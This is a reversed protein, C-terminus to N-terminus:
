RCRVVLKKAKCWHHIFDMLEKDRPDSNCFGKIQRIEDKCVEVTVYTTTPTDKYRIFAVSTTGERLSNIYSRLCNHQNTAEEVVEETTTPIVVMLKEYSYDLREKNKQAQEAFQKKDIEMKISRYAFSAIDHEKRLSSPFKRNSDKLNYGLANAQNLYDRWVTLAERKEICQHMYVTDLYNLADKWRIGYNAIECFESANYNLLTQFGEATITSDAEVMNRLVQITRYELDLKRAIKMMYPTLNLAEYVNEGNFTDTVRGNLIENTLRYLGSKYIQEIIPMKYWARIYSMNCPDIITRYAPHGLGAAELYGSYRLPSNQIIAKMDENSNGLCCDGSRRYGNSTYYGLDSRTKEVKGNKISYAVVKKGFFYREIEIVEKNIVYEGSENKQLASNVKFIRLLLDNEPLDTNEFNMVYHTETNSNYYYYSTKLEDGCNPCVYENESNEMVQSTITNCHLCGFLVTRRGALEAVKLSVVGHIKSAIADKDVEKPQYQQRMTELVASKNKSQKSQKTAKLQEADRIAIRIREGFSVSFEEDNVANHTMRYNEIIKNYDASNERYFKDERDWRNRSYRYVVFGAGADYRIASLLHVNKELPNQMWGWPNDPNVDHPARLSVDYRVAMWGNDHEEVYINKLKEEAQHIVNQNGCRPCIHPATQIDFENGCKQCHVHYYRSADKTYDSSLLVPIPQCYKSKAIKDSIDATWATLLAQREAITLKKNSM